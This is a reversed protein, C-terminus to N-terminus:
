RQSINCSDELPSFCEPKYGASRPPLYRPQKRAGLPYGSCPNRIPRQFASQHQAYILRWRVGGTGVAWEVFDHSVVERDGPINVAYCYEVKAKGGPMPLAILQSRRYPTTLINM